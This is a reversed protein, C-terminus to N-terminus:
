AFPNAFNKAAIESPTAQNTWHRMVELERKLRTIEQQRLEVSHAALKQTRLSMEVKRLLIACALTLGGAICAYDFALIIWTVLENQTPIGGLVPRWATFQGGAVLTLAALVVAGAAYRYGLFVVALIPFAVFYLLTLTGYAFLAATGAGYPIIVFCFARVTYPLRHSLSAVSIMLIGFANVASAITVGRTVAFYTYPIAGLIALFLVFRLVQGLNRERWQDLEIFEKSISLQDSLAAHNDMEMQPEIPLAPEPSQLKPGELSKHL